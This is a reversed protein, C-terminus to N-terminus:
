YANDRRFFTMIMIQFDLWLSWNELYFIDYRIRETLSTNGRLGNVQAWGTIGPKSAHRANYHPIEEKFNEILEPREPRPGVLSMDGKLVNWFQPIEDLNWERMFAGIKLRRPDDKRAWQAGNETEADMRMSRIKIIKFTRGNRGVRTQRYFISGPSELYVLAGCVALIPLSFLLGFVSGVLDVGRKLLRNTLRELPLQTVGLIPVGSITELQLGSVLIQFYSPIISFKVYEKECLNALSTIEDTAANLDAAVVINIDFERLVSPLQSYDGFTRLDPPPDSTLAGTSPEICGVIEYPHSAAQHIANALKDAEENWGIFLVKQRLGRAIAEQRVVMWFGIRWLLLIALVCFFSSFVYIRSIPPYFKLALSIALYGIVWIATGKLLVPLVQRFNLLRRYEYLKLYGFTLILFVSGVSILGLYDTYIRDSSESGLNIWGSNFRIWYGLSLGLFTAIWDGFLSIALLIDQLANRRSDQSVASLPSTTSPAISESM